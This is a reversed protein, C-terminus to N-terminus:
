GARGGTLVRGGDSALCSRAHSHTVAALGCRRMQNRSM